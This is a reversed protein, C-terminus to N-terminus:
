IHQIECIWTKWQEAIESTAADDLDLQMKCQQQMITKPILLVPSLFGLPDFLSASLSLTMRKTIDASQTIPKFNINFVFADCQVNWYIGLARDQPLESTIIDPDYRGIGDAWRRLATNANFGSPRAGFVQVQMCYTSLFQSEKDRRLLCLFCQDEPYVLVRHYISEVDAVLAVQEQQCRLPVGILSYLIVPGM